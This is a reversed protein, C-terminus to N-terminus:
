TLARIESKEAALFIMFQAFWYTIMIVLSSHEYTIYFKDFAINMDSFMFLLAGFFALHAFKDTKRQAFARWVMTLIVLMYIAVAIKLDGLGTYIFIFFSIGVALLILAVIGEVTQKRNLFALVYSVHAFLFALLGFIFLDAHIELLLDGLVSFLLGYFILKQYKTKKPIIFALILVPLPKSILKISQIDLFYGVFFTAVFIVAILLFYKRNKEFFLISNM